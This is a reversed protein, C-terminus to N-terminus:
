WVRQIRKLHKISGLKFM